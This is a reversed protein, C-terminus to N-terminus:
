RPDIADRTLAFYHGEPDEIEHLPGATSGGSVPPLLAIEDGDALQEGRSTFEQNRAIVISQAMEALKPYTAAYHDFVFGADIGAPAQFLDEAQGCVDKLIGFFLVRIQMRNERSEPWWAVM